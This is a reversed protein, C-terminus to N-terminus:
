MIMKNKMLGLVYNIFEESLHPTKKIEEIAIIIDDKSEVIRFNALHSFDRYAEEIAKKDYFKKNLRIKEEM